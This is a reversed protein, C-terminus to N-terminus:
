SNGEDKAGKIQQIISKAQGVQESNFSGKLRVVTDTVTQLGIYSIAVYLWQDPAIMGLSFFMTSLIFVLLKRSIAKGLFKDLSEKSAKSM